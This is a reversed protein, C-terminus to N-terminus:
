PVDDEKCGTVGLDEGENGVRQDLRNLLAEESEGVPLPVKVRLRALHVHPGDTQGSDDITGNDKGFSILVGKRVNRLPRVHGYVTLFQGDPSLMVVM